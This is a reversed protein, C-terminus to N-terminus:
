VPACVGCQVQQMRDDGTNLLSTAGAQVANPPVGFGESTIVINTLKPMGGASVEEQHTLAWVGVRNDFTGTPDISELFYEADGSDGEPHTIAPQVSFAL